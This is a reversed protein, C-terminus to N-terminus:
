AQWEYFAEFAIRTMDRMDFESIDIGQEDRLRALEFGAARLVEDPETTRSALELVARKTAEPNSQRFAAM